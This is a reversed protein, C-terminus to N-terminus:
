RRRGFVVPADVYPTWAARQADDIRRPRRTSGDILVVTTAARTTLVRPEEGVPSFVEYHVDLSSGGIRAIWLECDLPARGYPIPKLYEIEQHAVLTLTTAGPSGDLIGLGGADGAGDGATWLAHIRAEELLGLMAANNVHGYADIDSWRTRVPVTLRM